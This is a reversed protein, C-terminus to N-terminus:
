LGGGDVVTLLQERQETTMVVMPLARYLASADPQDADTDHYRVPIDGTDPPLNVFGSDLAPVLRGECRCPNDRDMHQCRTSLYHELRLRARILVVRVNSEDVNLAEATAAPSSVLMNVIFATRVRLPLCGLAGALCTRKLEWLVKHMRDADYGNPNAQLPVLPGALLDDLAKFRETDTAMAVVDVFIPLSKQARQALAEEIRRALLGLLGLEPKQGLEQALVIAGVIDLTSLTRLHEFAAERTGTMYFAFTFLRALEAAFLERRTPDTNHM